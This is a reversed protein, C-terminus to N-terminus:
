LSEPLFYEQYKALYKPLEQQFRMIHRRFLLNLDVDPDVGLTLYLLLQQHEQLSSREIDIDNELRVFYRIRDFHSCLTRMAAYTQSKNAAQYLLHHFEDDTPYYQLLDGDNRFLTKQLNFNEQLQQLYVADIHGALSRVLEPEVACRLFIGENVLNLNIYSVRSEKRPIVDILKEEQLALVAEHVPTRSINMEAALAAENILAGPKLHCEMINQRINRYAYQSHKEMALPPSVQFTTESM